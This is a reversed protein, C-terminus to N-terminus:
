KEGEWFMDERLSKIRDTAYSAYEYTTLEQETRKKSAWHPDIKELYRSYWEIALKRNLARDYCIAVQYYIQIDKPFDKIAMIFVNAAENNRNLQRLLHGRQINARMGITDFQAVMVDLEDLIDLGQQAKRTYGYVTALYNMTNIDNENLQRAKELYKEANEFYSWTMRTMRNLTNLALHYNLIGYHSVTTYSSDGL